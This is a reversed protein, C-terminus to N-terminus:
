YLLNDPEDDVLLILHKGTRKNAEEIVKHFTEIYSNTEEKIKLM